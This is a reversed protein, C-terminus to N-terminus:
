LFSQAFWFYQWTTIDVYYVSINDHLFILVVFGISMWSKHPNQSRTPFHQYNRYFYFFIKEYRKCVGGQHNETEILYLCWSDFCLFKKVCIRIIHTVYTSSRAWSLEFKSFFSTNCGVFTSYSDQLLWFTQYLHIIQSDRSFFFHVPNSM